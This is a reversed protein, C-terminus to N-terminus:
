KNCIIISDVADKESLLYACFYSVMVAKKLIATEIDATISHSIFCFISKVICINLCIHLKITRLVIM